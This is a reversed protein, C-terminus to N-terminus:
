FPLFTLHSNYPRPTPFFDSVKLNKVWACHKVRKGVRKKERGKKRDNKTVKEGGVEAFVTSFLGM